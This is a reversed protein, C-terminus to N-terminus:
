RYSRCYVALDLRRLSGRIAGRSGAVARAVPSRPSSSGAARSATCLVTRGDGCSLRRSPRSSTRSIDDLDRYYSAVIEEDSRDILLRAFRAPSFAVISSGNGRSTEAARITNSMNFVVNFVVNFARKPTDIAYSDHWVQPTTENTLFASVVYPGYKIQGLEERVDPELDPAVAAALPATTALIAYRAKAVHEIGDHRYPVSVHNDGGHIVEHVGTGTRGRQGLSAGITETLTSPSGEYRAAATPGADQRAGDLGVAGVSDEKEPADCM